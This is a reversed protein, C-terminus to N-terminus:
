VAVADAPAMEADWGSDLLDAYPDEATADAVPVETNTEVTEELAPEAATAAEESNILDAFPDSAPVEAAPAEAPPPVVASETAAPEDGLGALLADLDDEQAYSSVVLALSCIPILLWRSM